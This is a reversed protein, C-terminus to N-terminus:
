TGGCGSTRSILSSPAIKEFLYSLEAKLTPLWYFVKYLAKDAKQKHM